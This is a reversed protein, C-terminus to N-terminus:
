MALGLVSDCQYQTDHTFRQLDVGCELDQLQQGLQFDVLLNQYKLLFQAWMELKEHESALGIM